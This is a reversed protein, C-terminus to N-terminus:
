RKQKQKQQQEEFGDVFVEEEDEPGSGCGTVQVDDIMWGTFANFQEDDSDFLFRVQVSQGAYAALSLEPAAEWTANSADQSNRSSLETWDAAGMPRVAVQTQDVTAALEFEVERFESYRLVSTGTLGTILPSILEGTEQQGTDYNCVGDVGFYVAATASAYGPPGCTSNDVRHWLGSTTWGGLGDEFDENLVLGPTCGGGAPNVTVNVSAMGTNTDADQATATVTHMGESLTAQITGGTGLDGDLSSSWTIAAALDGDEDDDATAQFDLPTGTIVTTGNPPATITVTPAAGAGGAQCTDFVGIGFAMGQMIEAPGKLWGGLNQYDDWADLAFQDNLATAAVGCLDLTPDISHGLLFQVASHPKNPELILNEDIITGPDTTFPDDDIVSVDQVEFPDVDQDWGPQSLWDATVDIAPRAPDQPSDPRQAEPIGITSRYQHWTNMSLGSALNGGLDGYNLLVRHLFPSIVSNNIFQQPTVCDCWDLNPNGGEPQCLSPDAPQEDAQCMLGTAMNEEALETVVELLRNHCALGQAGPVFEACNALQVFHQIVQRVLDVQNVSRERTAQMARPISYRTVVSNGAQAFRRLLAFNPRVVYGLNGWTYSYDDSGGGYRYWLGEECLGGPGNCVPSTLAVGNKFGDNNEGLNVYASFIQQWTLPLSLDWVWLPNGTRLYEILEARSTSWYNHGGPNDTPGNPNDANPWSIGQTDPWLQSGFTKALEHQGGSGVTDDHFRQMFAQYESKLLSAASTGLGPFVGSRNVDALSARPMLGRELALNAATRAPELQSAQTIADLFSVRAFHFLGKGGGIALPESILELTLTEDGAAIAQPERFRMWPMQATVAYQGDGVAVFPRALIETNEVATGDLTVRARRQWPTGGGKRQTVRATMATEAIAGSGAYFQSAAGPLQLPLAWSLRDITVVGDTFPGFRADLCENRFNVQLDLHPTGRTLTVILTYGLSQYSAVNPEFDDCLTLGGAADVFHAQVAFSAKVPGTEIVTFTDPDLVVRGAVSTDLVTAGGALRLVPGSGAAHQYLTDSGITVSELLAPNTSDLVFTAAGTDVTFVGAAENVTLPDPVAPPAAALRQLSYGQTANAAVADQLAIELWRVPLTPTDVTGAWRALVRFQAPVAAGAADVVQLNDTTLLGISRALPIASFAVEDARATPQDNTVEFCAITQGGFACTQAMAPSAALALALVFTAIVIRHRSIRHATCLNM